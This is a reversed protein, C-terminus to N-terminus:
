KFYPLINVSTKSSSSSTNIVTSWLDAFESGSRGASSYAFDVLILHTQRDKYIPKLVIQNRSRLSVCLHTAFCDLSHNNRWSNRTDSLNSKKEKLGFNQSKIKRSIIIFRKLGLVLNRAAAKRMIDYTPVLQGTMLSIKKFNTVNRVSTKKKGSQKFNM